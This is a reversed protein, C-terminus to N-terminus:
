LSLGDDTVDISVFIQVKSSNNSLVILHKSRLAKGGWKVDSM